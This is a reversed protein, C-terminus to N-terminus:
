HFCLSFELQYFVIKQDGLPGKHIDKKLYKMGLKKMINISAQNNKMAIATFKNVQGHEVLAKKLAEAAETAYGNGWSDRKFRWGLELNDLEIKESFFQMPRILVWGIFESNQLLSVKWLGWGQEVNTYSKMRPISINQIDARSTANGGNIYTMVDPSQDLEYLLEADQATM